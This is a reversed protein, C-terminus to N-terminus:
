KNRMDERAKDLFRAATEQGGLGFALGFALSLAVIVGTFLTQFYATAIGLQSLAVIVAFIWIAWRAMTGAFGASRIGAARATGTVVGGAAEAVVAAVLLILVAVIVQPLFSLVIQQLFFTVQALNLIQLSAVLFVVIIFWKVLLGLFRGSNLNYGAREVVSGVGASRLAHDVKISKVVQEILMEVWVAIFWGIVFVVVAFVFNPIFNVVGWLLNYFSQQLVQVWSQVIM